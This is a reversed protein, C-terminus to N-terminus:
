QVSVILVKFILHPCCRFSFKSFRVHTAFWGMILLKYLYVATSLWLARLRGVGAWDQIRRSHQPCLGTIRMFLWTLLSATHATSLRETTDSEKRGWPSYGALSRQGHSKGPLFAPTPQWKRNWSIKRVWPDFRCRRFQCIFEKGSQWRPLGLFLHTLALGVTLSHLLYM